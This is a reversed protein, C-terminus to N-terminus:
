CPFVAIRSQRHRAAFTGHRRVSYRNLQKVTIATESSVDLTEFQLGVIDPFRWM